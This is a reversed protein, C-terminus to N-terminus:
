RQAGQQKRDSCTFLRRGVVIYGAGAALIREVNEEDVGGDVGVRRPSHVMNVKTLNALDASDRTGPEILM